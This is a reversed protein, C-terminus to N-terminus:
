SRLALLPCRSLLSRLAFLALLPRLPFLSLLSRLAFLADGTRNAPVEFLDADM